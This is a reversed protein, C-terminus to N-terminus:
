HFHRVLFFALSLFMACLFIILVVQTLTIPPVDKKTYIIDQHGSFQVLNPHDSSHNLESGCFFCKKAESDIEQECFPCRLFGM